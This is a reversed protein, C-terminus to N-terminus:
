QKTGAIGERKRRKRKALALGCANRLSRLGAPGLRWEPSETCACHHCHGPRLVMRRPQRVHIPTTGGCSAHSLVQLPPKILESIEPRGGQATLWGYEIHQARVENYIISLYQLQLRSRSIMDDVEALTPV